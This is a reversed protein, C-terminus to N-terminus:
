ASQRLSRVPFFKGGAIVTQIANILDQSSDGKPIFVACGSNKAAPVVYREDYHSFIVIKAPSSSTKLGRVVFWPKAGAAPSAGRYCAEGSV